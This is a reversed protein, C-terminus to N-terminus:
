VIKLRGELEAFREKKFSTTVKTYVNMTTAIDCHGMVDQILKVNSEQECLRTCFTHRFNHASFHPLLVADRGEKSALTQEDTNYKDIIRCIVRDVSATYLNRGNLSTFVFGECGDVNALVGPHTAQQWQKQVLLAERVDNFMPIIRRGSETKPHHIHTSYKGDTGYFAATRNVYILGNEFDCDTWCLAIAEGIRCGTGLLFTFLPVWRQHEKKATCYHMFAEQQPITLAERPTEEYDVPCAEKMAGNAPNFSIIRDRVAEDLIQHIIKHIIRVSNVCLNGAKIVSIYFAKVDNYKLDKIRVDGFQSRVHKEYYRRYGEMTSQRISVRNTFFNDFYYNLTPDDRDPDSSDTLYEYLKATMTRLAEGGKKGSPARDSEVLRWSYISKRIGNDLYRYEYKGDARQIENPRLVRGKNDRRKESMEM